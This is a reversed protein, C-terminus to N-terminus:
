AAFLSRRRSDLYDLRPLNLYYIIRINLSSPLTLASKNSPCSLSLFPPPLSPFGFRDALLREEREVERALEGDFVGFEFVCVGGDAGGSKGRDIIEDNVVSGVIRGKCGVLGHHHHLFLRAHSDHRRPHRSNRRPCLLSSPQSLHLRRRTHTNPSSTLPPLHRHHELLRNLPQLALCTPELTPRTKM